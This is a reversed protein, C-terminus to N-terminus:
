EEGGGRLQRRDSRSSRRLIGSKPWPLLNRWQPRWCLWASRGQTRTPPLPCNTLIGFDVKNFTIFTNKKKYWCFLFFEEWSSHNNVIMTLSYPTTTTTSLLFSFFFNTALRRVMAAKSQDASGGALQSKVDHSDEHLLAVKELGLVGLHTIPIMRPFLKMRSNPSIAKNEAKNCYRKTRLNHVKKKNMIFNGKQKM